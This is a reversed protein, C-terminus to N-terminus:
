ATKEEGRAASYQRRGEIREDYWERITRAVLDPEDCMPFHNGNKVVMQKADPYLEKWHTQFGFPDNREGFLRETRSPAAKAM